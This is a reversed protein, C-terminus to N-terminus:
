KLKPMSAYGSFFYSLSKLAGVINERRIRVSHSCVLPKPLQIQFYNELSLPAINYYYGLM